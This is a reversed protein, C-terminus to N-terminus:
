RDCRKYQQYEVIFLFSHRAWTVKNEREIVNRVGKKVWMVTTSTELDIKCM